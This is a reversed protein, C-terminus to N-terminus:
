HARANTSLRALGVANAGEWQLANSENPEATSWISLSSSVYVRAVETPYQMQM